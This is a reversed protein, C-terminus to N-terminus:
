ARKGCPSWLARGRLHLYVSLSSRRAKPVEGALLLLIPAILYIGPEPRSGFPENGEWGFQSSGIVALLVPKGIREASLNGLLSQGRPDMRM